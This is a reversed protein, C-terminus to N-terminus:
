AARRLEVRNRGNNKADYLADDAAKFVSPFVVGAKDAGSVGISVTVELDTGEVALSQGAVSQRIREAVREAVRLSTAPMLVAIEEGGYRAVIDTQRTEAKVIAAISALVRDGALHGFRDNISKFRDVDVLLMAFPSGKARASESIRYALRDFTRRNALATLADTSAETRLEEERRFHRDERALFAGLLLIGLVANTVLPIAATQVVSVATQRPLLALCALVSCIALSLVLLQEANPTRGKWIRHFVYGITSAMAIAALGTVAGAGGQIMRFIGMICAAIVAAVLGGFPAALAAMVTRSDLQVGEPTRILDAMSLVGALGFLLGIMVSRGGLKPAHRVLTSYAMVVLAMLGANHLLSLFIESPAYSM